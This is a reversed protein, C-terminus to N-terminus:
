KSVLALGFVRKFFLVVYRARVTKSRIGHWKHAGGSSKQAGHGALAVRIAHQGKCTTRVIFPKDANDPRNGCM